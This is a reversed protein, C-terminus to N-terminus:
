TSFSFFIGGFVKIENGLDVKVIENTSTKFEVTFLMSMITEDLSKGGIKLLNVYNNINVENFKSIQEQLLDLQSAENDLSSDSSLNHHVTTEDDMDINIADVSSLIFLLPLLLIYATLAGRIVGLLGGYIRSQQGHRHGYDVEYYDNNRSNKTEIVKWIYRFLTVTLVFKIIPYVIIFSVIKIIIDLFAVIVMGINPDM